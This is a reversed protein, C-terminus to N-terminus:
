LLRSVSIVFRVIMCVYGVCYMNVVNVVNNVNNTTNTTKLQISNTTIKILM